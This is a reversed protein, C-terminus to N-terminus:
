PTEHFGPENEELVLSLFSLVSYFYIGPAEQKRLRGARCLRPEGSMQVSAAESPCRFPCQFPIVTGEM